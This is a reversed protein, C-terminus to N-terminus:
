LLLPSHHRFRTLFVLNTVLHYCETLFVFIRWRNQYFITFRHRFWYKTVLSIWIPSSIPKEDSYSKFYFPAMPHKQTRATNNHITVFLKTVLLSILPSSLSADGFVSLLHRFVLRTVWYILNLNWQHCFLNKESNTFFNPKM